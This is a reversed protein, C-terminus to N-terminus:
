HGAVASRVASFFLLGIMKSNRRTAFVGFELDAGPGIISWYEAVETLLFLKWFGQSMALKGAEPLWGPSEM